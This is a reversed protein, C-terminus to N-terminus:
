QKQGGTREFTFISEHMFNRMHRSCFRLMFRPMWTYMSYEVHQIKILKAPVTNVNALGWGSSGAETGEIGHFSHATFVHIHDRWGLAGSGSEHPVAIEIIGGIKTVRVMEQFAAWWPLIHELVHHAIVKDFCETDFPYPTRDLDWILDPECEQYKDVNLAGIIKNKGCGLNLYRPQNLPALAM